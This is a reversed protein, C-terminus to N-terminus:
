FEGPGLDKNQPNVCNSERKVWSGALFCISGLKSVPIGPDCSQFEHVFHIVINQMWKRSFVFLHKTYCLRLLLLIRLRVYCVLIRCTSISIFMTRWKFTYNHSVLKDLVISFINIILNCQIYLKNYVWYNVKMGTSFVAQQM